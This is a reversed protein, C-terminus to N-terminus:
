KSNNDNDSHTLFQDLTCQYFDFIVNGEAFLQGSLSQDM